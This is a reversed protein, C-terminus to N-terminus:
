LTRGARYRGLYEARLNDLLDAFSTMPPSAPSPDGLDFARIGVVRFPTRTTDFAYLLFDGRNGFVLFRSLLGKARYSDNREKLDEARWLRLHGSEVEGEAGDSQRLFKRYDAPLDVKLSEATADLAAESIGPNLQVTKPLVIDAIDPVGVYPTLFQITGIIQKLLAADAKDSTCGGISLLTPQTALFEPMAPSRVSVRIQSGVALKPCSKDDTPGAVTRAPRNDIQGEESECGASSRCAGVDNEYVGYDYDIKIGLARNRIQGGSSDIGVSARLTTGPPAWLTFEGRARLKIWSPPHTGDMDGALSAVPFTVAIAFLLLWNITKLVM